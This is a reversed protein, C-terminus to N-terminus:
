KGETKKATSPKANASTANKADASVPEGPTSTNVTMKFAQAQEGEKPVALVSTLNTGAFWDSTDLNRM